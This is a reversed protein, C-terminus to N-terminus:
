CSNARLIHTDGRDQLGQWREGWRMGGPQELAGAKLHRDHMLSARTM